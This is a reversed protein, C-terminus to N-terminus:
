LLFHHASWELVNWLMWWFLDFWLLFFCLMSNQDQYPDRMNIQAADNLNSYGYVCVLVTLLLVLHQVLSINWYFLFSWVFHFDWKFKNHYFYSEAWFVPVLYFQRRFDCDVTYFYSFNYFIFFSRFLSFDRINKKQFVTFHSFYDYILNEKKGSLFSLWFWEIIM